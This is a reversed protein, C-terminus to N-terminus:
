WTATIINGDSDTLFDGDSDTIAGAPVGQVAGLNPVVLLPQRTLDLVM